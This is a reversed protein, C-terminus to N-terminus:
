RARTVPAIAREIPWGRWLRTAAVNRNVGTRHAWQALTMTESGITYKRRTDNRDASVSVADEIPMGRLLRSKLTHYAIGSAEAWDATCKTQGNHTTMRNSRQNRSQETQTAWRCNDPEYGRNNDIRDISHRPTPKRGMDALFTEFSDRWQECM